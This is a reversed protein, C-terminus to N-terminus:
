DEIEILKNIEVFEKMIETQIKNINPSLALGASNTIQISMCMNNFEKTYILGYSKFIRSLNLFFKVDFNKHSYNKICDKVENFLM